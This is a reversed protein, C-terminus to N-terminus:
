HQAMMAVGVFRWQNGATIAKRQRASSPGSKTTNPDDRGEDILVFVFTTLTPGGGGEGRVFKGSGRM